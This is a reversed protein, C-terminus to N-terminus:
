SLQEISNQDLGRGNWKFSYENGAFGDDFGLHWYSPYATLHYVTGNARTVPGIKAYVRELFQKWQPSKKWPLATFIERGSDFKPRKDPPMHKVQPFADSYMFRCTKDAWKSHFTLYINVRTGVEYFPFVQITFRSLQADHYIDIAKRHAQEYIADLLNDDINLKTINANEPLLASKQKKGRARSPTPPKIREKEHKREAKGQAISEERKVKEYTLILSPIGLSVAVFVTVIEWTVVSYLGMIVSLLVGFIGFFIIIGRYM